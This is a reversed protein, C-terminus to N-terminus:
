AEELFPGKFAGYTVQVFGAKKAFRPEIGTSDSAMWAMNALLYDRIGAFGWAWLLYSAAKTMAAVKGKAVLHKELGGDKFAKDALNGAIHRHTVLAAKPDGAKRFVLEMHTFAESFDTDVWGGKVKKAKTPALADIDAQTLYHVSGDAELRFFKLSVP